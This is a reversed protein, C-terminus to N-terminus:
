SSERNVDELHISDVITDSSLRFNVILATHIRPGFPPQRWCHEAIIRHRLVQFSLRFSLFALFDVAWIRHMTKLAPGHGCFFFNLAAEIHHLRFYRPSSDSNRTWGCKCRYRVVFPEFTIAWVTLLRRPARRRHYLCTRRILSPM